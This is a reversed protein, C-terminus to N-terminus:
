KATARRQASMRASLATLTRALDRRTSRIRATSDLQQLSQQLRLKFIQERTERERAVLAEENLEKLKEM